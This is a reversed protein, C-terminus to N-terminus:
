AGGWLLGAALLLGTAVHVATALASAPALRFPQARSRALVVGARAALPLPLLALLLPWAQWWVAAVVITAYALALLAAYGWPAGRLRVALTRKGAQADWPLDPVENVYLVAAMLAGVPISLVWAEVPISAEGAAAARQVLYTGATVLPGFGLAVALEGLGRSALSVPPATYLVGLLVGAAGLALVAGQGVPLLAVIALGVAAGAALLAGALALVARPSLLGRQIVRSGGSFRTPTVNAEDARSRHDFYDNAANSGLHLLAVGLVTLGLFPLAVVGDRLALAAGLLVPVLSAALMPARVARALVRAPSPKSRAAEAQEWSVALAGERSAARAGHAGALAALGELLGHLYAEPLDGGLRLVAASEGADVVAGAGSADLMWPHVEAAYVELLRQPEGALHRVLGRYSRGWARASARGVDRLADAGRERAIARLAADFPALPLVEFPDTRRPDGAQVEAL